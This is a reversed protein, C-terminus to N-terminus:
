RKTQNTGVKLLSSFGIGLIYAVICYVAAAAYNNLTSGWIPEESQSSAVFSLVILVLGSLGGLKTARVSWEKSCKRQVTVGSLTGIVIFLAGVIIDEYDIDISSEGSEGALKTAKAYIIINVPLMFTAIVGSTTTMAVSLDLDAHMVFCVINSMAGGPCCALIVLSIAYIPGLNCMKGVTYGLPPLLLYQTLLQTCIAKPAKFHNRFEDFNISTGLGFMLLFLLLVNIVQNQDWDAVAM